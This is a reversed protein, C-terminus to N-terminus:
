YILFICIRCFRLFFVFCFLGFIFFCLTSEGAATTNVFVNLKKWGLVRREEGWYFDRAAFRDQFWMFDYLLILITFVFTRFGETAVVEGAARRRRHFFFLRVSFYRYFYNWIGGKVKEGHLVLVVFRFFSVSQRINWLNKEAIRNRTAARAHIHTTRKSRTARTHVHRAKTM